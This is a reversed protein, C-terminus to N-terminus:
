CCCLVPSVELHSPNHLLSVSIPKDHTKDFKKSVSQGIHSAVDDWGSM